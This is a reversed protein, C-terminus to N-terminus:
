YVAFDFDIIKISTQDENTFIINNPNIDTHIINKHHM